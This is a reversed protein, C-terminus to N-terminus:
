PREPPSLTIPLPKVWQAPACRHPMGDFEVLRGREDIGCWVRCKVCQVSLVIGYSSTWGTDPSYRMLRWARTAPPEAQTARPATSWHVGLTCHYYDDGSECGGLSCSSRIGSAARSCSSISPATPTACRSSAASMMSDQLDLGAPARQVEDGDGVERDSSRGKLSRRIRESTNATM